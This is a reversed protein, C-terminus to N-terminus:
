IQRKCFVMSNETLGRMNAELFEMENLEKMLRIESYGSVIIGQLVQIELTLCMKRL